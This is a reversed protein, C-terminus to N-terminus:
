IELDDAFVSILDMDDVIGAMELPEIATHAFRDREDNGKEVTVGVSSRGTARQEASGM